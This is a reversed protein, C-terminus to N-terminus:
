CCRSPAFTRARSAPECDAKAVGGGEALHQLIVTRVAGGITGGLTCVVPGAYLMWTRSVLGAMVEIGHGLADLLGAAQRFTAARQKYTRVCMPTSTALAFVSALLERSMSLATAEAPTADSAGVGHFKM